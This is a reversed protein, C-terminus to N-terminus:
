TRKLSLFLLLRTALPPLSVRLVKAYTYAGEYIPLLGCSVSSSGYNWDGTFVSNISAGLARTGQVAQTYQIFDGGENVRGWFAQGWERMYFDYPDM